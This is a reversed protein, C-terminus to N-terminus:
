AFPRFQVYQLLKAWKFQDALLHDARGDLNDQV